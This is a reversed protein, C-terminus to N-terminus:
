KQSLLQNTSWKSFAMTMSYAKYLLGLYIPKTKITGSTAILMSIEQSSPVIPSENEIKSLLIEFKEIFNNFEKLTQGHQPLHVLYAGVFLLRVTFLLFLMGRPLFPINAEPQIPSSVVSSSSDLFIPSLSCMMVGIWQPSIVWDM